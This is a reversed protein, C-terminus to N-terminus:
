NSPLERLDAEPHKQWPHSLGELWSLREKSSNLRRLGALRPPPRPETAPEGVM